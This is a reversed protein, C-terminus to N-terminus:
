RKSTIRDTGELIVDYYVLIVKCYFNTTVLILADLIFYWLSPKSIINRLRCNTLAALTALQIKPASLITLIM